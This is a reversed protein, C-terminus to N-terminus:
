KKRGKNKVPRCMQKRDRRIIHTGFDERWPQVYLEPHKNSTCIDYVMHHRLGCDCCITFEDGRYITGAKTLNITRWEGNKAQHYLRKAM